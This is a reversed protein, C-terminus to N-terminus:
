MWSNVEYDLLLREFSCGISWAKPSLQRARRVQALVFRCLRNAPQRLEVVLLTGPEFRRGLRLCMGSASIDQVRAPWTAEKTRAMPSCTVEARSAYRVSARREAGRPPASPGPGERLPPPQESGAPSAVLMPQTLAALFERCSAPRQTADARMARRIALDVHLSLKPTLERPTLLDNKLKKKLIALPSSGVFPIQGTVATYLTAGLSYVDCRPDAHKADGFQEPAMFNPTGIGVLPRTLDLTSQYDKILGLDTLKAEGSRTILINSPKVDRHIIQHEHALQLAQGVQVILGIAEEEPLKGRRELCRALDEGDIFELVLYPNSGEGYDLARVLHPHCLTSAARYEQKFREITVANAAATPSLVKIAVPQGNSPNRGKYVTAMGGEGIKELIDYPGADPFNRPPLTKTM